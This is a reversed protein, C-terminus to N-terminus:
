PALAPTSNEKPLGSPFGGGASAPGDVRDGTAQAAVRRGRIASAATLGLFVLVAVANLLGGWQRAPIWGTLDGTVRVILGVHLLVLPAYFRPHYPIPTGLVAPFIIPAHGLIMSLVLGVFVSHLMADYRLGPLPEGLICALAGAFVLWVYGALLCLAVFRSLGSTRLTHRALDHVGLWVGMGIMGLGALRVGAPGHALSVGLGAGFTVLAAIMVARAAPSPNLFRNLELREGVITLLPFAIWWLVMRYAPWSLAWLVDAAVLSLAGAAMITLPLRGHHKRAVDTTVIALVAAGAILLAVGLGHRPAAALVLAGAGSLIPAAYAWRRGTAVARELGIVTGLFGSVMLPGHIGTVLRTWLPLDWGLRVLGLWLSALLAAMGPVLLPLRRWAPRIVNAM